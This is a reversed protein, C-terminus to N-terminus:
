EQEKSPEKSEQKKALEEKIQKEKQARESEFKKLKAQLDATYSKFDDLDTLDELPKYFKNIKDMDEADLFAVKKRTQQMTQMERKLLQAISQTEGPITDSGSVVKEIQSNSNGPSYHSRFKLAKM